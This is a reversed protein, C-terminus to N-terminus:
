SDSSARITPILFECYSYSVRTDPGPDASKPVSYDKMNKYLVKLLANKEGCLGNFDDMDIAWVMAGGYGSEKIFDM